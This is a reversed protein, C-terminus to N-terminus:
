SRLSSAVIEESTEVIESSPQYTEFVMRAGHPTVVRTDALRARAEPRSGNVMADTIRL